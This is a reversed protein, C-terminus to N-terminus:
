TLPLDVPQEFPGIVEFNQVASPLHVFPDGGPNWGGVRNALLVGAAGGAVGASTSFGLGPVCADVATLFLQPSLPPMGGGAPTAGSRRGLGPIAATVVAEAGGGAAGRRVNFGAIRGGGSGVLVADVLGALIQVGFGGVVAAAVWSGGGFFTTCFLGVGVRDLLEAAWFAAFAAAAAAAAEAM